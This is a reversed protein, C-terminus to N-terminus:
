SLNRAAGPRSVPVDGTADARRFGHPGDRPGAAGIGQRDCDGTMTDHPGVASQGPVAPSDVTLPRKQLPLLPGSRPIM